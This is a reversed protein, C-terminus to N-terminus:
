SCRRWQPRALVIMLLGCAIVLLAMRIKQRRTSVGVTLHALLRSQVFQAILQRRKRWSWWFFAILASVLLVAYWLIEQHEFRM